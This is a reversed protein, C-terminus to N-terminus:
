AGAYDRWDYYWRDSDPDWEDWTPVAALRDRLAEPVIGPVVFAKQRHLGYPNRLEIGLVGLISRAIYWTAQPNWGHAIKVVIGLGKPYDPHVLAIGLLGDAGEKAIVSGRGAKLITSDLRNFGGILDPHGTMAGWIWDEARAEALGAYLLALESVTNSVTPLGCGDRAVRLPEWDAGLWRRLVGLYEQFMPHQPLTYGVRSWGRHRCGRLLAAHEGSCCHYWRRARRVQRGFQVLPVDLPTQMLPWEAPDLISQAAAVHETDGNHSALAIAKQPDDLVGALAPAFVKMLFPKMMSRGYCLVNGGFSHVIRGGSAWAVAGHVTTESVGNRRYDILPEWEVDRGSPLGAIEEGLPSSPYCRSGPRGPSVDSTPRGPPPAPPPSGAVLEGARRLPAPASAAAAPGPGEGPAEPEDQAGQASGQPEQGGEGSGPGSLVGREGRFVEVDEEDYEKDGVGGPAPSLSVVCAGTGYVPEYAHVEGQYRNHQGMVASLWWMPKFSVVKKVRVQKHIERSLQAVDELRGQGLFELLKRNWEDDKASHIRDEAPDIWDTFMRNSLSTVAVVATPVGDAEIADRAARGLVVTEARDSYVNSSVICAQIRREPDLLKLAVVSGTDIPFGRYAVTRAQLGRAQAASRYAEAFAADIRFRYPISGLGHFLEDVHVWEPEPDAQIQHGIVSPWVTSYLLLRRAGSAELRARAAEFGARIRAWGPNQEPVLLPHPMPSTVLGLVVPDDSAANM